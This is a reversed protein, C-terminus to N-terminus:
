VTGIRRQPTESKTSVSRVGTATPQPPPPLDTPALVVTLAERGASFNFPSGARPFCTQADDLQLVQWV